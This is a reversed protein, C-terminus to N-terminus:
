SGVMQMNFVSPNGNQASIEVNNKLQEVNQRFIDIFKNATSEDIVVFDQTRDAVRPYNNNVLHRAVLPLKGANEMVLPSKAKIDEWTVIEFVHGTSPEYLKTGPDLIYKDDFRKHEETRGDLTKFAFVGSTNISSITVYDNSTPVASAEHSVGTEVEGWDDDDVAIAPKTATTSVEKSIGTEVDGWDDDSSEEKVDKFTAPANWSNDISERAVKIEETTPEVKPTLRKKATELTNHLYATYIFIAPNKTSFDKIEAYITTLESLDSAMSAHDSWEAILDEPNVKPERELDRAELKSRTTVLAALTEPLVSDPDTELKRAIFTDWDKLLDWTECNNLIAEQWSENEAVYPDEDNADFLTELYGSADEEEEPVYGAYVELIENEKPETTSADTEDPYGDYLNPVVDYSLEPVDESNASDSGFDEEEAGNDLDEDDEADGNFKEWAEFNADLLEQPVNGLGYFQRVEEQLDALGTESLNVAASKFRSLFNKTATEISTKTVELNTTTEGTAVNFTETYELSIKVEEGYSDDDVEFSSLDESTKEAESVDTVTAPNIEDIVEPQTAGENASNISTWHAIAGELEEGIEASVFKTGTTWAKFEYDVQAIVTEYNEATLSNLAEAWEKVKRDFGAQTRRTRKNSEETAETKNTPTPTFSVIENSAPLPASGEVTGTDSLIDSLVPSINQEDVFNPVTLTMVQRPQSVLLSIDGCSDRIAEKAAEVVTKPSSQLIVMLAKIEDVVRDVSPAAETASQIEHLVRSLAAEIAAKESTKNNIFDQFAM